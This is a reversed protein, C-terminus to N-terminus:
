DEDLYAFDNSMAMEQEEETLLSLFKESSKRQEEANGDLMTFIKNDFKM